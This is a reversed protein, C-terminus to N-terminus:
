VNKASRVRGVIKKRTCKSCLVGGYPRDPRRRSKPLKGLQSPIKRPIGKLVSGCDGCVAKSPKRRKYVRKVGSVVRRKVRRRKRSRESKM